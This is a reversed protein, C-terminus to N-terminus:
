SRVAKKISILDLDLDLDLVLGRTGWCRQWMLAGRVNSVAVGPFM